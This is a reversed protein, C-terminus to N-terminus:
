TLCESSFPALSHRLLHHARLTAAGEGCVAALALAHLPLGWAAVLVAPVLAAARLLNARAPDGTRGTIVACQSLPTRLIRLGAAVGFALALATEPRFAAGYVLGIVFPALAAFGAAFALALLLHARMAGQMATPLAGAAMARRLRPALLSAAARGTIQAPLMALQLAVGYVAVETWGFFGAVILRDAQFTLFMLLANGVLPLGFVFVERLVDRDFALAYRQRAVLHSLAVQAVAQVALVAIIASHDARIALVVPLSALMALVAGGEVLAMARYSFDREARRYELHLFGRVLPIAALAAYGGAHAGGPLALAMPVALALLMLAMALGRILAAGHLANLFGPADGKASQALLREIGIDSIMEALRLTLALVMARGLEDPGIAWAMAASRMLAGAEALMPVAWAAARGTRTAGM